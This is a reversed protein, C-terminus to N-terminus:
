SLLSFAFFLAADTIRGSNLPPFAWSPRHCDRLANTSEKIGRGRLSHLIYKCMGLM